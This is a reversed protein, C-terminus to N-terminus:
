IRLLKPFGCYQCGPAVVSPAYHAAGGCGQCSMEVDAASGAPAKDFYGPQWSPLAKLKAVFWDPCSPAFGVRSQAHLCRALLEGAGEFELPLESSRDGEAVTVFYAFGKLEDGGFTTSETIERVEVTFTVSPGFVYVKRQGSREVLILHDPHFIAEAVPHAVERSIGVNYDYLAVLLGAVSLLLWVLSNGNDAFALVVGLILAIIGGLLWGSAWRSSAEPEPFEHTAGTFPAGIRPDLELRAILKERRSRNIFFYIIVSLILLTGKVKWVASPAVAFTPHVCPLAAM